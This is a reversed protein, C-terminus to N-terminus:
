RKSLASISFRSIKKYMSAPALFSAALLMQYRLSPALGNLKKSREIAQKRNGQELDIEIQVVLDELNKHMLAKNLGLLEEDTCSQAFKQRMKVVYYQLRYFNRTNNSDHARILAKAQQPTDALYRFNAGCQAARLYLDWDESQILEADLGHLANVLDRKIISCSPFFTVQLFTKVVEKGAGSIEPRKFRDDQLSGMLAPNSKSSNFHLAPSYVIDAEPYIQLANVQFALKEPSLLDDADLFQLFDGKAKEIGKNRAQGPGSNQQKIYEFRSDKEMYGAMVAETNDKSGDDVVICEWNTYTQALLSDLAYPLLHGFNYTPIVVSVLPSHGISSNSVITM